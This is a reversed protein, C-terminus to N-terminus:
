WRLRDDRGGVEHALLSQDLPTAILKLIVREIVKIVSATKIIPSAHALIAGTEHAFTKDEVDIVTIELTSLRISDSLIVVVEGKTIDLVVTNFNDSLEPRQEILRAIMGLDDLEKDLEVEQLGLDETINDSLVQDDM